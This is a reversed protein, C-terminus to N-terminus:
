APRALVVLDLSEDVASDAAAAIVFDSTTVALVDDWLGVSWDTPAVALQADVFSGYRDDLIRLRPGAHLGLVRTVVFGQHELLGTLECATFEKTHFPNVPRDLGPSFTLRNPTTLILVGDPRLVRRCERVYEGYDWVHEVVQLSEVVDVAADAVPLAALNGRVFHPRRYTAAAHAVTAADYDVGLVRRASTALLATGYGEGCGVELVDRGTVFGAAFEYAAEHRRFWYNEAPVGPVTREGTLPLPTPVSRPGTGDHSMARDHRAVVTQAYKGRAYTDSPV